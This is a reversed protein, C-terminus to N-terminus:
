KWKLSEKLEAHRIHGCASRVAQDIVDCASAGSFGFSLLRRKGGITTYVPGTAYLVPRGTRKATLSLFIRM